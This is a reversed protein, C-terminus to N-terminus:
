LEDGLAYNEIRHASIKIIAMNRKPKTVRNMNELNKQKNTEEIKQTHTREKVQKSQKNSQSAYM